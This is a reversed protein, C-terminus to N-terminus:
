EPWIFVNRLINIRFSKNWSKKNLLYVELYVSVRLSKPLWKILMYHSLSNWPPIFLFCLNKQGKPLISCKSSLREFLATFQLLGMPQQILALAIIMVTNKWTMWPRHVQSPAWWLLGVMLQSWIFLNSDSKQENSFGAYWIQTNSTSLM